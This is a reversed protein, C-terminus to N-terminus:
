GANSFGSRLPLRIVQMEERGGNCKFAFLLYLKRVMLNCQM